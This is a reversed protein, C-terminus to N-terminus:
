FNKAFKKLKLNPSLRQFLLLPARYASPGRQNNIKTTSNNDYYQTQIISIICYLIKNM